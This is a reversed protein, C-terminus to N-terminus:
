DLGNATVETGPITVSGVNVGVRMYSGHAACGCVAQIPSPYLTYTIGDLHSRKNKYYDVLALVKQHKTSTTEVNTADITLRFTFPTGGYEFWETVKTDPYIASIATQVAYKTGLHKHVRFSDKLTQRKQEVTYNYDWWDVKFDYALIDLLDEPLEDIRSFIELMRIENKRRALVQATSTALAFLNPDNQLVAPLQALINEKTLDHNSM